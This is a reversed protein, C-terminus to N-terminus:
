PEFWFAGASVLVEYLDKNRKAGEEIARCHGDRSVKILFWGAILAAAIWWASFDFFFWAVATAPFVLFGMWITIIGYIILYAKPVGQSYVAQAAINKNTRVRGDDSAKRFEEWSPLRGGWSEKMQEVVSIAIQKNLSM